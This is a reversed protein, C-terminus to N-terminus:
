VTEDEAGIHKINDFELSKKLLELAKICVDSESKCMKYDGVTYDHNRVNSLTKTVEFIEENM